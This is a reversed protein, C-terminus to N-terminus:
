AAASVNLALALAGMVEARDGLEGATVRLAAAADPQAYRDVSDRIGSVLAPSPGIDGGVVVAAPNLSNCLDALVRGITRGADDLVRNAGADGQRGLELMRAVTLEEEHAPQLLQILKPASVQTELCGRSGCRCVPGDAHVQVHGVEGAIGSTGRHLRGGLVLGAGVGGAAKVYIVDDFGRAAGYSLEGLAGAYADNDVSVPHGLRRELEAGPSLGRWSPLVASTIRGSRWDVPGPVGMGVGAVGGLDQGAEALAQETLRAAADLAGAADHDVDFAITREARIVSTREAVAVRIHRHGLDVGVVVGPPTALRLLIPPRGSGGKHPTGKGREEVVLGDTLMDHVLSSVTARSVGTVRALDARSLAGSTALADLITGRNFRRLDELSSGHRTRM